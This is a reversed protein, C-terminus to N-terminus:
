ENWKILARANGQGDFRAVGFAGRQHINCFRSRVDIIGFWKSNIIFMGHPTRTAKNKVSLKFKRSELLTLVLADLYAKRKKTERGENRQLSEASFCPAFTSIIRQVAFNTTM